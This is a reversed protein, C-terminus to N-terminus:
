AEAAIAARYIAVSDAAIAPWGLKAACAAAFADREAASRGAQRALVAALGNVDGASVTEVGPCGAVYDRGPPAKIVVPLGCGLAEILTISPDGPWAGADAANFLGPLADHPLMGPFLVRDAAGLAAARRRL